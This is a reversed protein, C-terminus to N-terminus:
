YASIPELSGLEYSLLLLFGFILLNWIKRLAEFRRKEDSIRWQWQEIGLAWIEKSQKIQRIDGKFNSPQHSQTHYKNKIACFRFANQKSM